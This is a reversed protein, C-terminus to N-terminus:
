WGHSNDDMSMLHKWNDENSGFDVKVNSKDSCWDFKLSLLVKGKKVLVLLWKGEM